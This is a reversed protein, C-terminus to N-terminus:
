EDSLLEPLSTRLTKAIVRLNLISVNREGREVSGIFTRHLECREGLEAQTMNLATRRERIRDGLHKLFRRQALDM